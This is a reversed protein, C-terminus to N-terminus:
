KKTTKKKAGTPKLPPSPPKMKAEELSAALGERHRANEHAQELQALRAEHDHTMRAMNHEHEQDAAAMGKEHAQDVQGSAFDHAFKMHQSQLKKNEMERKFQMELLDLQTQRDKNKQDLQAKMVDHAAKRQSDVTQQKMAAQKLGLEQQKLQVQPDPPQPPPPGQHLYTQGDDIGIGKLAKRQVAMQDYLMGAPGQSLSVLAAAQMTRHASSPINPDTAPVINVDEFEDATQWKRAPNRAMVTLAEPDEAFLEKLLSLEEQMASHLRKHVSAMTQTAQEIMSMMTGVPIHTRGEGVEMEPLGALRQADQGIAESLQIFVPSPDKYPMPMFGDKISDFPGIDAEVWEGPGPSIENTDTRVGKAKIGGPFSAFMGADILIRWVARLARTSNGLLHLYGLCLFGFSPLLGYHVFRKRRAYQEDGEKWNRHIALVQQSARDVTVCYPVPLGDIKCERDTYGYESLDLDTYTEYLEYEQDEPRTGQPNLGIIEGQKQHTADTTGQGMGLDIRLYIKNIQMRKLQNKGMYIRHTYRHADDLSSADESVIFDEIQISRSVPYRKIPDRYCKKFLNGGFGLAFLGRDFDPYYGKDIQTLFNNFDIEFCDAKEQEAEVQNGLLHAKCPGIAPMLEARAQAQFRVVSELLLPHGIRSVNRHQSRTTTSEEIKLGLLELGKNYNDIFSARSTLDSQVGAVIDAALGTFDHKGALNEDFGTTDDGGEGSSRPNMDIEVSGDDNITIQTSNADQLGNSQAM